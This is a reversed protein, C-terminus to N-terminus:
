REAGAKRLITLVAARDVKQNYTLPIDDVIKLSTPVAYGPLRQAVHELLLDETLGAGGAAIAVLARSGHEHVTTVYASVVMPHSRIAVSVEPLEVRNGRIKVQDDNRGIFVLKGADNWRVIDGTRYILTEPEFPSDVFTTSGPYLYGPAVSKGSLCLEGEGDRVLTGHENILYARVGPIPVGIPVSGDRDTEPDFTHFICGVTAETPGYENIIEVNNMLQGHVKMALETALEEGGVILRRIHHHRNLLHSLVYLYSPTIKIVTVDRDEVIRQIVMPDTVGDYIGISAGAILPPFICTVTFDFALTTYLAIRDHVSEIYRDRAWRVYNSLNGHTIGVGKPRGTTGSTYLIYALASLSVATTPVPESPGILRDLRLKILGLRGALTAHESSYVIMTAQSDDVVYRVRDFPNRTDVPVYTAGLRLVALVSAVLDIGHSVALCVRTGPGCGLERLAHSIEDVRRGLQAYNHLGDDDSVAIRGHHLMLSEDFLMCVNSEERGCSVALNAGNVM